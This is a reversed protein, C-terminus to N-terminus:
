MTIRQDSKLKTHVFAQHMDWFEFFPRERLRSRGFFGLVAMDLAECRGYGWNRKFLESEV